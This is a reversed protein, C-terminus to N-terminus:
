RIRLHKGVTVETGAVGVGKTKFFELIKKKDIEITVVKRKFKPPILDENLIEVKPPNNTVAMKLTPTDIKDIGSAEMNNLVYQKMSKARNVASQKLNELRAIEAEVVMAAMEYEKVIDIISVVKIEMAVTLQDLRLFLDEDASEAAERIDNAIDYLRMPAGLAQTKM